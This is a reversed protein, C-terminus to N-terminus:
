ITSIRILLISLHTLAYVGYAALLWVSAAFYDLLEPTDVAIRNLTLALLVMSLVIIVVSIRASRAFSILSTLRYSSATEFCVQTINWYWVYFYIPLLIPSLVIVILVFITSIILIIFGTFAAPFNYNFRMEKISVACDSRFRDIIDFLVLSKLGEWDYGTLMPNRLMISQTVLLIILSTILITAGSVATLIRTQFFSTDRGILGLKAGEEGAAATVICTYGILLLLVTCMTLRFYRAEVPNLRRSVSM